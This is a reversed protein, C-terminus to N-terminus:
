FGFLSWLITRLVVLLMVVFFVFSAWQWFSESVPASVVAAPGGTASVPTDPPHPHLAGTRRAVPQLTVRPSSLM